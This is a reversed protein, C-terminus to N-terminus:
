DSVAEAKEVLLFAAAAIFWAAQVILLIDIVHQLVRFLRALGLVQLAGGVALGSYGFLRPLLRSYILVVGLPLLLAPAILFVHQVAKRLNDSALGSAQDGSVAGQVAGM